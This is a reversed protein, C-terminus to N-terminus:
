QEELLEKACALAKGGYPFAPGGCMMIAVEVTESIEEMTANAKLASEVHSIICGECRIAISIALAMLEKQKYDIAGAQLSAEHLGFFAQASEQSQQMILNNNQALEDLLKRYKGM